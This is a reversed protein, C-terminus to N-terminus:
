KEKVIKIERGLEKCIEELTMEEVEEVKDLEYVTTYIPEEVKIIKGLANMNDKFGKLDEYDRYYHSEEFQNSTEKIKFLIKGREFTVKTGIPCKKFDEWSYNDTLNCEDIYGTVGDNIIMYRQNDSRCGIITVVEGTKFGYISDEERTADIIKVRDGVKYKM